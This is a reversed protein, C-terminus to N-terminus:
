DFIELEINKQHLGKINLLIQQKIQIKKEKPLSHYANEYTKTIVMQVWGGGVM